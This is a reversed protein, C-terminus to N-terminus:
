AGSSILMGRVLLFTQDVLILFLTSLVMAVITIVTYRYTDPRSLWTVKKLESYTNKLFNVFRKLNLVCYIVGGIVGLIFLLTIVYVAIAGANGWNVNAPNITNILQSITNTVIEM